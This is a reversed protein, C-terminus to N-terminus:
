LGLTQIVANHSTIQTRLVLTINEIGCCAPNSGDTNDEEYVYVKSVKVVYYLHTM